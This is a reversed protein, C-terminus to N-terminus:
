VTVYLDCRASDSGCFGTALRPSILVSVYPTKEVSIPSKQPFIRITPCLIYPCKYLSMHIAALLTLALFDIALHLAKYVCSYLSEDLCLLPTQPFIRFHLACLIPCRFLSTPIAALLSLALFGTVLRSSPM